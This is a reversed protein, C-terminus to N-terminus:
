HYVSCGIITKKLRLLSLALLLFIKCCTKGLIFVKKEFTTFILVMVDADKM